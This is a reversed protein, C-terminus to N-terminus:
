WAAGAQKCAEPMANHSNYALSSLKNGRWYDRVNEM